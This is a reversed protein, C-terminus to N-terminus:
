IYFLYIMFVAVVLFVITMMGGAKMYDANKYGGPTM